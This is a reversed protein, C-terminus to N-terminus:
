LRPRALDTSAYSAFLPARVGPEILVLRLTVYEAHQMVVTLPRAQFVNLYMSIFQYVHCVTQMSRRGFAQVMENYYKRRHGTKGARILM